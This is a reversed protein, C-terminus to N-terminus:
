PKRRTGIQAMFFIAIENITAGMILIGYFVTAYAVWSWYSIYKIMKGM